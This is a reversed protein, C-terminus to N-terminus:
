SSLGGDTLAAAKSGLDGEVSMKGDVLVDVLVLLLLLLPVM